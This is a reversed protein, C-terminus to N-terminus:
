LTVDKLSQELERIRNDRAVIEPCEAVDAKMNVRGQVRCVKVPSEELPSIGGCGLWGLPTLIVHLDRRSAGVKEELVTM